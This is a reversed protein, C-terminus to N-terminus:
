GPPPSKGNGGEKKEATAGVLKWLVALLFRAVKRADPHLSGMDILGAEAEALIVEESSLAQAEPEEPDM